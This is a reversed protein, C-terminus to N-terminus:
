QKAGEWFGCSKFIESVQGYLVRFTSLAVTEYRDAYDLHPIQVNSGALMANLLDHAEISNGFRKGDVIVYGRSSTSITRLRGFNVGSGDPADFELMLSNELKPVSSISAGTGGLGIGWSDGTSWKGPFDNFASKLCQSSLSTLKAPFDSGCSPDSTDTQSNKCLAARIQVLCGRLTIKGQCQRYGDAVDKIDATVVREEEPIPAKPPPTNIELSSADFCTMLSVVLPRADSQCEYERDLGRCTFGLLNKGSRPTEKKFQCSSSVCGKVMEDFFTTQRAEDTPSVERGLILKNTRAYFDPWICKRSGDRELGCIPSLFYKSLKKEETGFDKPLGEMDQHQQCLQAQIKKKAAESAQQVAQEFEAKPVAGFAVDFSVAFDRMELISERAKIQTWAAKAAAIREPRQAATSQVLSDFQKACAREIITKLNNIPAVQFSSGFAEGLEDRGSTRNISIGEILDLRRMVEQYALTEHAARNCFPGEEDRPWCRRNSLCEALPAYFRELARVNSYFVGSLLKWREKGNSQLINKPVDNVLSDHAVLFARGNAQVTTQYTSEFADNRREQYYRFGAMGAVSIVIALIVAGM